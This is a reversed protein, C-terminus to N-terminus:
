SLGKEQLGLHTTAAVTVVMRRTQNVQGMVQTVGKWELACDHPFPYSSARSSYLSTKSVVKTVGARIPVAHQAKPRGSINLIQM